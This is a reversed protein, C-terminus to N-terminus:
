KNVNWINGGEQDGRGFYKGKRGEGKGRLPNGGEEPMLDRSVGMQTDEGESALSPLRRSCIGWPRLGAQTHEKTPPETEPLEWPDLNTSVTPRGIPNGDGEAGEIRGRVRGYPDRVETWHKAILIQM